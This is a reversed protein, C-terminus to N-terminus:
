QGRFRALHEPFDGSRIRSKMKDAWDAFEPNIEIIKDCCELAGEFEQLLIHRLRIIGLM